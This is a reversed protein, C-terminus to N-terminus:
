LLEVSEFSVMQRGGQQAHNQVKVKTIQGQFEVKALLGAGSYTKIKM